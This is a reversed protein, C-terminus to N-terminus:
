RTMGEEANIIANYIGKKVELRWVDPSATLDFVTNEIHPPPLGKSVLVYDMTLRSIRGNGDRFPHISVLERQFDAAVNIIEESTRSNRIIPQYKEILSDM